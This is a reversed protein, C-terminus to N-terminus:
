LHEELFREFRRFLHLQQQLDEIGHRVRPYVMFDCDKGAQQLAHLFQLSNQMHVNDDMAAAVLLLPGHLNGAAAVCSGKEYGAENTTPLGAYRETYITDYNRWDTVANVAVGCKWKKSHTLNYITQYGGYSWGWIAIRNPDAFGQAIMWDVSDELDALESQGLRHWCAKAYVRGKGSASRNDCVFVVYGQQALLHHWLMERPDWRDRVLPTHPGSYTHQVVPYEREDDFGEPVVLMAEMLFGDRTPVQVFKPESLGYPQMMQPKSKAITRVTNGELDCLFVCPPTNVDSWHTVFTLFDPAMSVDHTGRGRTIREVEGGGLPVRYLHTQLPSDKDATFYVWGRQEDVGCVEKIQWQGETLRGLLEGTTAYRYAHRFGDRESLWLFEAGDKCWLPEPGAEVWCDSDERWLKRVAGTAAEGALMELWTQERGQVQFFV